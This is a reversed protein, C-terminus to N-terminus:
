SPSCTYGTASEYQYMTFGICYQLTLFFLFIFAILFIKFVQFFFLQAHFAVYHIIGNM